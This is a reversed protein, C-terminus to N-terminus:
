GRKFDPELFTRYFAVAEELTSCSELMRESPNGRVPKLKPDSEYKEDFGAVWDFALGAENM